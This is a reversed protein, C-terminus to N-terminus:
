GLKELGLIFPLKTRNARQCQDYDHHDEHKEIQSCQTTRGLLTRYWDGCSPHLGYMTISLYKSHSFCMKSLM